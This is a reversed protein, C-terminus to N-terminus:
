PMAAAIGRRDDPQQAGIGLPIPVRGPPSPPAQQRIMMNQWPESLVAARAAPRGVIAAAVGAHGHALAAAGGFFDLASWQENHGFGAPPQMAKPFASATDAITKLEDTLPRGRQALRALGRANVDGTAYNTAGEVDYSKAILRRAAQYEQVVGSANNAQHLAAWAATPGPGTPAMNAMAQASVNREILDDVHNAAERQALGLAHKSPDAPTKLNANAQYRLEKVVEMWASTPHEDANMLEERMDKIGPNATIRPFIAHAQSNQGGLSNIADKFDQDSKVTPIANSVAQYAKGAEQRVAQFTQPSLTTDEPLGLAKAALGNTVEQNAQSAAQQTKIKGSWGALVNSVLGPRESISAPPLVYGAQRAAIAPPRVPSVPPNPQMRGSPFPEGPGSRAGLAGVAATIDSRAAPDNVPREGLIEQGGEQVGRIPAAVLQPTSFELNGTTKDRALPLVNGYTKNPDQQFVTRPPPASPQDWGTYDPQKQQGAAAQDFRDFPNAVAQSPQPAAQAPTDFQDFPNAAM